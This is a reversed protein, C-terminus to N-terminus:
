DRLSKGTLELFINELNADEFQFSKIQNEIKRIEDMINLVNSNPSVFIKISNKTSNVKKVGQIKNIKDIADNGMESFTIHLIDYVNVRKKLEEKTGLEILKGFDIIGVRNCISEVEEMYHSTYIVTTGEQKNLAKITELIHNRSQPDIGVTPEDLILIQPRHMLAIGLNVRRKMGGSFENVNQKEKGKLEIIELVENVRNKLKVGKIGYLSGFFRLNDKATMTEYLALDQPVIGIIKKVETINKEIAERNIKIEGLTPKVTTSLMSVITSKGAGNPGLLGFVEGREIKLSVGNVATCDGFKKTINILEIM